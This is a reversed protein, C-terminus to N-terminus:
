PCCYLAPQFAHAYTTYHHHSHNVTHPKYRTPHLLELVKEETTKLEVPPKKMNGYLATILQNLCNSKKTIHHCQTAELQSSDEEEIQGCDIVKRKELSAPHVPLSM